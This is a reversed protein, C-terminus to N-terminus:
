SNFFVVVVVVVVFFFFVISLQTVIHTVVMKPYYHVYVMSLVLETVLTRVTVHAETDPIAITFQVQAYKASM